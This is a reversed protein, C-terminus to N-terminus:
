DHGGSLNKIRMGNAITGIVKVGGKRKRQGKRMANVEYENVFNAIGNQGEAKVYIGDYFEEEMSLMCRRKSQPPRTQKDKGNLSHYGGLDESFTGKGIAKVM